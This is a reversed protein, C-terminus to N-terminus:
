WASRVRFFRKGVIERDWTDQLEQTPMTVVGGPAVKIEPNTSTSEMVKKLAEEKTAGEPATVKYKKGDPSTILFVPM